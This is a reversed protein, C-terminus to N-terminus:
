EDEEEADDTFMHDQLFDFHEPRYQQGRAPSHIELDNLDIAPWDHSLSIDDLPRDLTIQTPSVAMDSNNSPLSSTTDASDRETDSASSWEDALQNLPNSDEDSASSWEDAIGTETADDETASSWQDALSKNNDELPVTPILDTSLHTGASVSVL